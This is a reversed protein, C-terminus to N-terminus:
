MVCLLRANAKKTMTQTYAMPSREPGTSCWRNVTRKRGSSTSGYQIASTNASAARAVMYAACRQAALLPPAPEVVPLWWWWALMHVTHQLGAASDAGVAPPAYVNECPSCSCLALVPVVLVLLKTYEEDENKDGGGVADERGMCAAAELAALALVLPMSLSSAIASM